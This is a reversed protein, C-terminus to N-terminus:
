VKFYKSYQLFKIMCIVINPILCHTQCRMLLMRYMESLVTIQFVSARSGTMSHEGYTMEKNNCMLQFLHFAEAEEDQM